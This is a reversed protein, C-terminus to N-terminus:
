PHKCNVSRLAELFEQREVERRADEEAMRREHRHEQDKFIAEYRQRENFQDLRMEAREDRHEKEREYREERHERDKKPRAKSVDYWLYWALMASSAVPSVFQAWPFNDSGAAVQAVLPAAFAVIPALVLKLSQTWDM